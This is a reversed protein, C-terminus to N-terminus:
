PVPLSLDRGADCLVAVAGRGVAASAFAAGDSSRGKLAVFLDGPEIRRSDQHVGTVQVAATAAPGSPLPQHLQGGVHAALAKLSVGGSPPQAHPQQSAEDAQTSPGVDASHGSAPGAPWGRPTPRDSAVAM